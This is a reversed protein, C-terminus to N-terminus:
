FSKEGLELKEEDPLSEIYNKVYNIYIQTVYLYLPTLLTKWNKQAEFQEQNDYICPLTSTM